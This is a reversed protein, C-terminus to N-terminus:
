NQRFFITKLSAIERNKYHRVILSLLDIINIIVSLSLKKRDLFEIKEVAIVDTLFRKTGDGLSFNKAKIENLYSYIDKKINFNPLIGEDNLLRFIFYFVYKEIDNSMEIKDLTLYLSVFIKEVNIDGDSFIDLIELILFLYSLKKFSTLIGGFDRVLSVEKISFYDFAKSKCILGKILNPIQLISRRKSKERDSGFSFVEIKGKQRELLFFSAHGEGFSNKKLVIATFNDLNNELLPM